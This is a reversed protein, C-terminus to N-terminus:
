EINPEDLLSLSFDINKFDKETIKDLKLLLTDILSIIDNDEQYKYNDKIDVLTEKLTDMRYSDLLTIEEVTFM